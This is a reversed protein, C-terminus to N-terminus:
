LIIRNQLANIAKIKTDSTAIYSHDGRSLTTAAHVADTWEMPVLHSNVDVFKPIEIFFPMLELDVPAISFWEPHNSLFDRVKIIDFRNASIEDFKRGLEIFAFTSSIVLGSYSPDRTSQYQRVIKNIRRTLEESLRGQCIFKGEGRNGKEIDYYQALFEALINTDLVVEIM